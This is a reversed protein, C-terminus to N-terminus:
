WKIRHLLNQAYSLFGLDNPHVGDENFFREAHPILAEGSVTEIQNRECAAFIMRALTRASAAYDKRRMRTNWVPTVATIRADPYLSRLKEFYRGARRQFGNERLTPIDNVGIATLIREPSYPLRMLTEPWVRSSGVCQNVTEANWARSLRFGLSCAPGYSAIGQAISDGLLLLRRAPRPAPQWAGFDADLVRLGCTNPLILEILAKGGTERIFSFTGGPQTVDIAVTATQTGNEFVDMANQARCLSVVRYSFALRAASTVFALKIGATCDARDALTRSKRHYWARQEPTLRCPHGAQASLANHFLQDPEM